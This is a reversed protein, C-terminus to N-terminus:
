IYKFELMFSQAYELSNPTGIDIFNIQEQTFANVINKHIMNPIIEKELSVPSKESNLKFKSKSILYVGANIWTEDSYSKERFGNRKM